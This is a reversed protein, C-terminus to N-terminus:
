PRIGIALWATVGPADIGSGHVRYLRDFLNRVGGTLHLRQGLPTAGFVDVTM